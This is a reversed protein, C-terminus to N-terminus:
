FCGDVLYQMKVTYKMNTFSDTGPNGDLNQTAEWHVRLGSPSPRSGDTLHVYHTEDTRQGNEFVLAPKRTVQGAGISTWELQGGDSRFVTAKVRQDVVQVYAFSVEFRDLPRSKNYLLNKAMEDDTSAEMQVTANHFFRAAGQVSHTNRTTSWQPCSPQFTEGDDGPSGCGALAAVVVLAIPWARMSSWPPKGNM